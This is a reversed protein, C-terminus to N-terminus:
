SNYNPILGLERMSHYHHENGAIKTGIVIHDVVEIGGVKGADTMMKTTAIDNASPTADGSPHNHVLIIRSANQSIATRFVERPHVPSRDVLGRTVMRKSILHNKTDLNLCWFKEQQLGTLIPAMFSQVDMPSNPKDWYEIYDDLEPLYFDPRIQFGELIRLRGDYRYALGHAALWNAIQREGDSQVLTGDVVRLTKQEEVRTEFNRRKVITEDFCKDCYVRQFQRQSREYEDLAVEKACQQCRRVAQEERHRVAERIATAASLAAQRVYDKHRPSAALDDLDHLCSAGADGYNKLAKLAYQQTQPHPDHLAVPELAALALAPDAGFGALKGIASAALRRIEASPMRLLVALEPLAAPDM